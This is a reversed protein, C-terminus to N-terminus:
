CDKKPIFQHLHCDEWGFSTQLIRHLQYFNLNNKIIDPAVYESELVARIGSTLLEYIKPILKTTLGHLVFCYQTADNVAFLTKRRNLVILNATWSFLPDTEEERKVPSTKLFELLSKTCGILM